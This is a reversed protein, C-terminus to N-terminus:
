PTPTASQVEPKTATASVALRIWMGAAGHGPVECVILYSGPQDATFHVDQKSGTNVGQTADKSEAGAFAPKPQVAPVPSEAKTVEASHPMNEDDNIFHLTVHWKVPVTLTIAGATAGDFNMGGNVPTMGAMLRFEVTSDAAKVTMWSPDVKIPAAQAALSRPATASLLAAAIVLSGIRTNLLTGM